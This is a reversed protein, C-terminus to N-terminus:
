RLYYTTNPKLSHMLVTHILGSRYISNSANVVKGTNNQVSVVLVLMDTATWSVSEATDQQIADVLKLATDWADSIVMCTRFNYMLASAQIYYLSTGNAQLGYQGPM